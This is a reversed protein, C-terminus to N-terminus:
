PEQSIAAQWPRRAKNSQEQHQFYVKVKSLNRVKKESSHRHANILCCVKQLGKEPNHQYCSWLESLGINHAALTRASQKTLVKEDLLPQLSIFSELSAQSLILRPKKVLNVDLVECLYKMINANELTSCNSFQWWLYTSALNKLRYNDREPIEEKILPLIDLFGYVISSFEEKKDMVTLAKLLTPLPLSWLGFGGLIPRHVTNLYCLLNRLGLECISNKAMLSSLYKVPQILVPFIKEGDVVTMQISGNKLIKVDFFVLSGQRTDLTNQSSIPLGLYDESTSENLINSLDDLLSSDMSEEDTSDEEFSDLCLSDSDSNHLGGNGDPVDELLSDEKALTMPPVSCSTGPQDSCSPQQSVMQNWGDDDDEVKIMKVRLTQVNANQVKKRKAPTSAQHSIEMAPAPTAERKGRTPLRSKPCEGESVNPSQPESRAPSAPPSASTPRSSSPAMAAVTVLPESNQSTSPPFLDMLNSPLSPWDVDATSPDRPSAVPPLLPRMASAITALSCSMAQIEQTMSVLHRNARRQAQLLRGGIKLLKDAQQINSRAWGGFDEQLSALSDQTSRPLPVTDGYASGSDEEAEEDRGMLLAPPTPQTPPMDGGQDPCVHQRSGSPDLKPACPQHHAPLGVPLGGHLQCHERPHELELILITEDESPADHQPASTGTAPFSAPHGTVREVLAQLRTRCEAFNGPQARDGAVPPQLWQLEKLSDRIFPQMDMVEQETAYLSMKEVLREGAEMRRLVGEVCQLERALDRQGQDRQAEVLGLLEEEEQRILRVLQEVRQQILERMERQAQELQKAEDQLAAYVAEFSSRKQKLEQSMTGLEEQRRQTESHIDCFAVHHSDLLACSCCLAKECKKCYISVTQGKHVPNSCSLSGTRRIGELFEKASWARIDLVRKAEHSERKLYRQHVEFCKTCIFEECEECWFEGAKKCNDCLLDVGDTIKKYVKLRAQLNTFLVNDTDTIGSAQPIATQCMTCQGAAKNKSLCDLCFTHLCTLLKLNPSEQQCGECLIFQFDDELLRTRSGSGAM